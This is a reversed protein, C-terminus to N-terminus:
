RMDEIIQNVQRSQGDFERYYSSSISLTTELKKFVEFDGNITFDRVSIVDM